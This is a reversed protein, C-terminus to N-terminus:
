AKLCQFSFQPFNAGRVLLPYITPSTSINTSVPTSDATNKETSALNALTNNCVVQPACVSQLVGNETRREGNETTPLSDKCLVGTAGAARQWTPSPGRSWAGFCPSSKPRCFVLRAPRFMPWPARRASSLRGSALRVPGPKLPSFAGPASEGRGAHWSLAFFVPPATVSPCSVNSAVSLPRLHCTFTLRSRSLALPHAGQFLRVQGRARSFVLRRSCFPGDVDRGEDTKATKSEGRGKKSKGRKALWEMRLVGYYYQRLHRVEGTMRVTGGSRLKCLCRTAAEGGGISSGAPRCCTPQEREFFVSCRLVGWELARRSGAALSM